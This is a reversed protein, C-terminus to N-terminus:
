HYSDSDFPILARTTSFAAQSPVSPASVEIWDCHYLLKLSKRKGEVGFELCVCGVLLALLLFCSQQKGLHPL